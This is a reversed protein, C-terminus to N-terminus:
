RWPPYVEERTFAAQKRARNQVAASGRGYPPPWGSMM